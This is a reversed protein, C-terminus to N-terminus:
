FQSGGKEQTVGKSPPDETKVEVKKKNLYPREGSAKALFEWEAGVFKLKGM